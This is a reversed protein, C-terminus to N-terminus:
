APRGEREIPDTPPPSEPPASRPEREQGISPAPPLALTATAQAAIGEERGTFGLKETTTAKVSVRAPHLDLLDAIRAVMAARHPALKPAECILTVDLHRIVGGQRRVLAGAHRLFIASDAGKWRAASPPFHSGIDGAGLGGLIADTLAHLGVDADSHGALGHSHALTVGCLTLQQGSAFRHVDFGSGVRTELTSDLLAQARTLDESHTVKFLEEQGVILSVALGYAEAVAADDTREQGSTARHAALIDAYHFAQPTQARWLNTRDLTEAVLGADGRKLTDALPLAPLAGPSDALARLLRAIVAQNPFPRAADHILVHTVAPRHASLSELGRRASEQRTAGGPVPSLLDLDGVASQYLDQDEPHIVVRVADVDSARLLRTVSHRLVAQGGLLEYQKPGAAGFRQGRGAAVVLAICYTM